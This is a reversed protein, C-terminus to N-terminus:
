SGYAALWMLAYLAAAGFLFAVFDKLRQRLKKRHKARRAISRRPREKPPMELYARHSQVTGAGTKEQKM